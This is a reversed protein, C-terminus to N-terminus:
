KSGCRLAELVTAHVLWRPRALRPEHIARWPVRTTIPIAENDIARYAEPM